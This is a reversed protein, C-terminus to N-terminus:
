KVKYLLYLEKDIKRIKINKNFIKNLKNVANTVEIDKIKSVIGANKEIKYGKNLKSNISVLETSKIKSISSYTIPEILNKENLIKIISDTSSNEINYFWKKLKNNKAIMKKSDINEYYSEILLDSAKQVNRAIFSSEQIPKATKFGSDFMIAPKGVLTAEIATTCGQHLVASFSWCPIVSYNGDVILKNYGLSKIYNSLKISSVSPKPRIIIKVNKDKKQILDIIKLQDLFIKNKVESIHDLNEISKIISYDNKGIKILKRKLQSARKKLIKKDFCFQEITSNVLIFKGYESEINKIQNEYLTKFKSSCIEVRPHGVCLIKKLDVEASKIAKNHWEGWSFLFELENFSDHNIRRLAFSKEDYFGTAEECFSIVKSNNKKFSKIRNIAEPTCAVEIVLNKKFKLKKSFFNFKKEYLIANRKRIIGSRGFSSAGLLCSLKYSLLIKSM